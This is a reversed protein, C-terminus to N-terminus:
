KIQGGRVGNKYGIQGNELYIFLGAV